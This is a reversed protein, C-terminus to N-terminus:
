HLWNYGLWVSVGHAVAIPACLAGLIMFTWAQAAIGVIVHTIWSAFLFVFILLQPM